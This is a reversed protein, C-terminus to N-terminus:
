ASVGCELHERYERVFGLYEASIEADGPIPVFDDSPLGRLLSQLEARTAKQNSSLNNVVSDERNSDVIDGIGNTDIKLRSCQLAASENRKLIGLGTARRAGSENALRFVRAPSTGDFFSSRPYERGEGERKRYASATRDLNL